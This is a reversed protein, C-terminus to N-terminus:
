AAVQEASATEISDQWHQHIKTDLVDRHGGWPLAYRWGCQCVARAFGDPAPGQMSVVHDRAPLCGQCTQSGPNFPPVLDTSGCVYCRMTM